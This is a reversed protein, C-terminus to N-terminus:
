YNDICAILSVGHSLLNLFSFVARDKQKTKKKRIMGTIRMHTAKSRGDQLSPKLTPCADFFLAALGEDGKM